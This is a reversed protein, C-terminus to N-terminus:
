TSVKHTHLAHGLEQYQRYRQRAASRTGEDYGASEVVRAYHPVAAPFERALNVLVAAVAPVPAAMGIQVPSEDPSDTALAHPVFSVDQFRWLLEDFARAASADACQVYIRHGQQWAKEVVRCLMRDHADAGANDIVYFDVRAM